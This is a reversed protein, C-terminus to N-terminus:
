LVGEEMKKLRKKERRAMKQALLESEDEDLEPFVINIGLANFVRLIDGLHASNKCIRWNRYTLVSVGCLACLEIQSLNRSLRISEISNMIKRQTQTTHNIITM